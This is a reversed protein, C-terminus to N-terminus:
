PLGPGECFNWNAGMSVSRVYEPDLFTTWILKILYAVNGSLEKM